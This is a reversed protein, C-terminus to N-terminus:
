CGSGSFEVTPCELEADVTGANITVVASPASWISVAGANVVVSGGDAVWIRASGGNIVASAGDHVYVDVDGGNAVFQGGDCVEFSGSVSNTVSSVVVDTSAPLAPACEGEGGGGDTSGGDNSGGDTATDDGGDKENCATLMLALVLIKKM